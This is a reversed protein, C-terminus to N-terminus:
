LPEFSIDSDIEFSYRIDVPEDIDADSFSLPSVVLNEKGRSKKRLFCSEKCLNSIFYFWNM